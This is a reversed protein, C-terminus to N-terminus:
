RSLAKLAKELEDRQWGPIDAKSLARRIHRETKLKMEEKVCLSCWEAYKLLQEYDGRAIVCTPRSHDFDFDARLSKILRRLKPTAKTSMEAGFM